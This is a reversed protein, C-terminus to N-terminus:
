SMRKPYFLQPHTERMHVQMSAVPADVHLGLEEFYSRIIGLDRHIPIAQWACLEDTMPAYIDNYIFIQRKWTFAMVAEALTNAGVYNCIGNKEENVLLVAVTGKQRIKGLYNRSLSRKFESFEEPTISDPMKSEDDPIIADVGMKLLEAQVSKMKEFFSMSGCILLTPKAFVAKQANICSTRTKQPLHFALKSARFEHLLREPSVIQEACYPVPLDHPPRFYYLPRHKAMLIGIEYCTTRGVYGEDGSESTPPNYVYVADANLIKRLTDTQIEENSLTTDDAEFVVFQKRSEVITSLYPSTVNLGEKRFFKILDGIERYYKQFSGIIAISQHM